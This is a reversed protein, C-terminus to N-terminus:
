YSKCRKSGPASANVFANAPALFANFPVLRSRHGCAGLCRMQYQVLKASLACEDEKGGVGIMNDVHKEPDVRVRTQVPNFFCHLIAGLCISHCEHLVGADTNM